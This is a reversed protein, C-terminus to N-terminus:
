HPITKEFDLNCMFILFVKLEDVIFRSRELGTERRFYIQKAFNLMRYTYIM